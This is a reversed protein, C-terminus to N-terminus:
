FTIVFPLLLLYYCFIRFKCLCNSIVFRVSKKCLHVVQGGGEGRGRGEGSVMLLKRNRIKIKGRVM